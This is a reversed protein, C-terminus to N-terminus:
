LRHMTRREPMRNGILSAYSCHNLGWLEVDRADDEEVKLEVYRSDVMNGAYPKVLQCVIIGTM